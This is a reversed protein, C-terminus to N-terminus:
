KPCKQPKNFFESFFYFFICFYFYFAQCDSTLTIYDEDNVRRFVSVRSVSHFHFFFSSFTKSFHKVFHFLTHYVLNVQSLLATFIATNKFMILSPFFIRRVEQFSFNSTLLLTAYISFDIFDAM